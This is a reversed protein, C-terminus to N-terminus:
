REIVDGSGTVRINEITNDGVFYVDGSGSLVGKLSTVFRCHIDGSGSLVVDCDGVVMDEARINGSGSLSYKADASKGEANIDGSGSLSADLTNNVLINNMDIDGSGSLNIKLYDSEFDNIEMDGSGSLVLTEIYPCVISVEIRNVSELCRDQDTELILNGGSIYTRIYQMLNEDANVTVSSVNGYYVTVDFSSTNVIGTFGSVVRDESSQVGNGELCNLFDCSSVLIGM